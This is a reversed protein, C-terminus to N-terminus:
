TGLSSGEHLSNTSEHSPVPSFKSGKDRDRQWTLVCHSALRKCVLFLVRLWVKSWHRSRSNGLRWFHSASINTTLSGLSHHKTRAVRLSYSLIKELHSYMRGEMNVPEAKEFEIVSQFYKSFFIGSLELYCLKFKCM